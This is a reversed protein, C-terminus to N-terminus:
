ISTSRKGHERCFCRTAPRCCSEAPMEHQAPPAIEAGARQVALIILDGSETVMGPFVSQGILGSRPPIVVEALGSSRNFLTEEGQGAAAEERFALHKKPLSPRRRRPM